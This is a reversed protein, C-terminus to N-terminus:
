GYDPATIGLADLFEAVGSAMLRWAGSEMTYVVEPDEHSNQYDLAFPREPGLDGILVLSDPRLSGPRVSSDTHGPYWPLLEKDLALLGDTQEAMASPQLVRSLWGNVAIIGSGGARSSREAVAVVTVRAGDPTVLDDGPKLAVAKLWEGQAPLWFPHGGTASVTATADGTTGDTDVTVDVLVKSGNGTITTAM